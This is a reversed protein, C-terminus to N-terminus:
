RRHEEEEGQEAGSKGNSGVVFIPAFGREGQAQRLAIQNSGPNEM